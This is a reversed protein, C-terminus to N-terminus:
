DNFIEAKGTKLSIKLIRHNNTDSVYLRNKLELVGPSECLEWIVDTALDLMTVSQTRLDM